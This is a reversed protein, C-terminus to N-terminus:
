QFLARSVFGTLQSRQLQNTNTPNKKPQKGAGGLKVPTVQSFDTSCFGEALKVRKQSGAVYQVVVISRQIQVANEEEERKRRILGEEEERM